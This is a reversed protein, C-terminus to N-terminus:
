RAIDDIIPISPSRASFRGVRGHLAPVERDSWALPEREVQVVWLTRDHAAESERCGSDAQLSRFAWSLASNARNVASSQRFIRDASSSISSM